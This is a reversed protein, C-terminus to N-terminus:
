GKACLKEFVSMYETALVGWNFRTKWAHQGASGLATRRDPDRLLRETAAALEAPSVKIMGNGDPEVQIVEGGGTWSAIERANGASVSLFPLGAACAEYLVLPSYEINSAFIFLDAAKYAQVLSQRQLNCVIVRKNHTGNIAKISRELHEFYGFRIGVTALMLRAIRKAIRLPSTTIVYRASKRLRQHITTPVAHKPMLNGNLLLVASRDGLDMLEFARALELHGKAGNLSGVTLLLLSEDPIEMERRFGPDAPLSFEIDDAGNPIIIARDELGHKRGFDYDRYDKSHYVIADFRKLIAPLEKFYQNYEPNVLGSYGCPVVVKPMRLNPLVAWLADFTWQQAAYVFLVDFDSEQVFSRYSDVEGTMGNVINGSVWFERITVGFYESSSREPIASTAVTVQHGAEVLRVALHRMVEQVGGVSPFFFESCFLIKM